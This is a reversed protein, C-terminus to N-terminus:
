ELEGDKMQVVRDVFDLDDFITDHTAILVTKKMEKLRKVVEVFALSNERDLNATPEDCLIIEPRNILARAIICRQKEGGSLTTVPADIKHSINATSSVETIREQIEVLSLASNALAAFLNERVSFADFLHFSQTIFGVRSERYTSAFYDTYSVINEGDVEVSGSTPKMIAGIISLLTSKGSGSIGKLVLIESDKIELNIDKLAHFTNDTGSLFEKNLAKIKIM